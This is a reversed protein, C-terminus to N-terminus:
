TVPRVPNVASEGGPRRRRIRWWAGRQSTRQQRWALLCALLLAVTLVLGNISTLLRHTQPGVDVRSLFMQTSVYNFAPILMLTAMTWRWALGVDRWSRQQGFAAGAIPATLLLADYSQHYLSVLTATLLVTGSLGAIGDDMGWRRRWALVMCPLILLAGMAALHAGDGPDSGTWKAVIAFLDLRTWSFVPSEDAQSRHIQQTVHIQERLEAVGRGINGEGEHYALWGFGAAAFTVSLVGGAVVARYNGRALMLLGLPLIYTPKASVILLATAAIWPRQEAWHVAALTALVLLLTFYGDFLTIHGGRSYVIGTAVICVALTRFSPDVRPPVAAQVSLWAIAAVVGISSLFYIVEAARLPLAALPAHLMLIVPSFFPIQRAVPYRDAYAQGYPSEGRSWALSPYYVGNHFDCYGQRSPNFPGPTQYQRIIRVGTAVVGLLLLVVVGVTLVRWRFRRSSSAAVVVADAADAVAHPVVASPDTANM